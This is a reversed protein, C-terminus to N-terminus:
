NNSISDMYSSYIEEKHDIVNWETWQGGSTFDFYYVTFIDDTELRMGISEYYMICFHDYSTIKINYGYDESCFEYMENVIHRIIDKELNEMSESYHHSVINNINRINDNPRAQQIYFPIKMKNM